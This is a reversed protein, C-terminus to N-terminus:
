KFGIEPAEFSIVKYDLAGSGLIEFDLHQVIEESTKGDSTMSSVCSIEIQSENTPSSGKYINLSENPALIMVDDRIENLLDIIEIALAMPPKSCEQFLM